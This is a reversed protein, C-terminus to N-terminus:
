DSFAFFTYVIYVFYTICITIERYIDVIYLFVAFLQKMHGVSHDTTTVTVVLLVGFTQIM